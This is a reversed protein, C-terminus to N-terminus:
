FMVVVGLGNDDSGYLIIWMMDYYVGILFLRDNLLGVFKGFFMGIINEGIM